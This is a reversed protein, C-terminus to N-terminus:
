VASINNKQILLKYLTPEFGFENIVSNIEDLAKQKVARPTSPRKVARILINKPTHDLEIFEM